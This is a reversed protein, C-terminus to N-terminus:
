RSVASRMVDIPPALGTWREFSGAGQSVLVERGEIVRCGAERAAATLATPAGDSRYPLDIVLQRREPEVLEDDVVPTANVILDAGAAQPPWDGRRSFSRVEAGTEELAATFARASGGAGLVVARRVEIGALVDADTSAGHVRGDRVVLTNASGARAAFRELEDCLEVVATKHPITVNAGAFGLAALGRVAEV